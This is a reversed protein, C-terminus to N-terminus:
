EQLKASKKLRRLGGYLVKSLIEDKGAIQERNENKRDYLIVKAGHKNTNEIKINPADSPMVIVADINAIKAAYAVAQGHNGSIATIM